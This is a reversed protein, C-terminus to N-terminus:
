DPIVATRVAGLKTLSQACWGTTTRKTVIVLDTDTVLYEQSGDSDIDNIKTNSSAPTRMEFNSGANAAIRLTHGIPVDDIPPLVIWDNADTTVGVVAAMTTGPLLSSGSGSDAAATLAQYRRPGADIEVRIKTASIYGVCNGIYVGGSTANTSITYNDSAHIPLGVTAQSFGSGTLVFIGDTFFEAKLDGASGSSNDVTQVAVGAFRNAGSGTTSAAYGSSNVFGFTGEYITTSAAVPYNARCDDQRRIIQGATVAMALTMTQGAPDSFLSLLARPGALCCFLGALIALSLCYAAIMLTRRPLATLPLM